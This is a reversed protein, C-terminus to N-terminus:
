FAGSWAFGATGPGVVLMVGAGPSKDARPWLGYVATGAGLAAGVILLAIGSQGLANRADAQSQSRTGEAVGVLVGGAIMVAGAAAAGGIVLAKNPGPSVPVSTPAAAPSPSVAEKTTVGAAPPLPESSDDPWCDDSFLSEEASREDDPQVHNLEDLKDRMDKLCQDSNVPSTVRARRAPRTPPGSAVLTRPAPPAAVPETWRTEPALPISSGACGSVVLLLALFPVMRPLRRRNM